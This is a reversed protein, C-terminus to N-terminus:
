GHDFLPIARADDFTCAGNRVAFATQNVVFGDPQPVDYREGRWVVAATTPYAAFAREAMQGFAPGEHFMRADVIGQIEMMVVGPLAATLQEAASNLVADIHDHHEKLTLRPGSLALVVADRPPAAGLPLSAVFYRCGQEQHALQADTRARLNTQAVAPLGRVVGCLCGIGPVDVNVQQPHEGTPLVARVAAAVDAESPANETLATDLRIEGALGREAMARVVANGLTLATRDNLREKAARTIRKCEVHFAVAARECRFEPGAVNRDTWAIRFGQQQYFRATAWEMLVPHAKGHMDLLKSRMDGQLAEPLGPLLQGLVFGAEAALFVSRPVELPLPQTDNRTLRDFESFADLWPQKEDLVMLRFPNNQAAVIARAQRAEDIRAQGLFARLRRVSPAIDAAHLEDAHPRFANVLGASM